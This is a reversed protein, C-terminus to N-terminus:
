NKSLEQQIEKLKNIIERKSLNPEKELKKGTENETEIRPMKSIIEALTGQVAQSKFIPYYGKKNEVKLKENEIELSKGDGYDNMALINLNLEFETNLDCFMQAFQKMRDSRFNILCVSDNKQIQFKEEFNETFSQPLIHEDYISKKYSIEAYNSILNNIHDFNSLLDFPFGNKAVTKTEFDYNYRTTEFYNDLSNDTQNNITDTFVPKDLNYKEKLFSTIKSNLYSSELWFSSEFMPLMGRAVRDWNKDRDMGFFRGGVSGLFIKNQWNAFKEVNETKHDLKETLMKEFIEWSAVLSKKDSDRGDTMLHLVIKEAGSKLSAEIMGVWHRMDSHITGTSFLGILHITKTNKPKYNGAAIRRFNSKYSHGNFERQRVEVIELGYKEYLNNARENKVNSSLTIDFKFNYKELIYELLFQGFGKGQENKAIFLDDIKLENNEKLTLVLYGLVEQNNEELVFYSGKGVKLNFGLNVDLLEKTFGTQTNNVESQIFDSIVEPTLDAKFIDVMGDSYIQIIDQIDKSTASRIKTNKKNKWREQLFESPDFLQDPALNKNIAFGSESSKTIQFSLQPVLKLGGINMHGVESNGVLGEEQGVMEGDANLTTWYNEKLLKRFNPMKALSNINNDNKPALGFGDLICLIKTSVPM